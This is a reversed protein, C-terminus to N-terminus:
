GDIVHKNMQRVEKPMRDRVSKKMPQWGVSVPDMWFPFYGGMLGVREKNKTTNAGFQHWLGSHHVLVSGAPAEVAVLHKYRVGARPVTPCHHSVPLYLTAGMDRTLDNLMWSFALVFCLNPVPLGARAISDLPRTAHLPGEPAGPKRWRCGVETMQFGEGLLDRALRLCTPETVLPLFLPDDKPDLSNFFGPLHQDTKRADPQRSMIDKVRREVRVADKRSILNHLVVFGYEVLEAKISEYPPKVPTKEGGEDQTALALAPCASASTLFGRRSVGEPLPSNTM